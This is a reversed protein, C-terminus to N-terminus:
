PNNVIGAYVPVADETTLVFLFPRDLTFWVEEEPPIPEGAFAEVVYSAASIGEEDVIFRASQQVKSVYAPADTLRSFDAKELSFCASLGMSELEDKLDNTEEIDFKPLALHVKTSMADEWVIPYSVPIDEDSFSNAPTSVAALFAKYEADGLLAAPSIGEDPLIMWFRAGDKLYKLTAGFKEGRYYKGYDETQKMFETKVDGGPAHFVATENEAKRFEDSWKAEYRLASVLAFVDTKEMKLGSSNQKLLGDTAENIWNRLSADYAESGMEGEFSDAYYWEALSKLAEDRYSVGKNLWISSRPICSSHDVTNYVDNWIDHAEARLDGSDDEGLVALLEENTRGASIESLMALAFYTNLPSCVRNEAGEGGLMAIMSDAFFGASGAASGRLARKYALYDLEEKQEPLEALERAYAKAALSGGFVANVILALAMFLAAPAAIRMSKHTHFFPKVSGNIWNKVRHKDPAAEQLMKEPLVNMAESIERSNM